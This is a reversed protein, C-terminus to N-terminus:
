GSLIQFSTHSFSGDYDYFMVTYLNFAMAAKDNIYQLLM